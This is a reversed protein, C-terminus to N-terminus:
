KEFAMNNELNSNASSKILKKYDSTMEDIFEQRSQKSVNTYLRSIYGRELKVKQVFFIMFNGQLLDMYKIGSKLIYRIFFEFSKCDSPISQCYQISPFIDHHITEKCMMNLINTMNSDKNFYETPWFHRQRTNEDSRYDRIVNLKQLFLGFHIADQKMKELNHEDMEASLENLLESLYVGVTGAVYYCYQNLDDLNEIEKNLYIGMGSAMEDIYKIGLQQQNEPLKNFLDVISSYNSFVYSEDEPTIKLMKKLVNNSIRNNKLEQCVDHILEIKDNPALITSDEITDITKCLNYQVMIPLKFQPELKLIPISFSRSQCKLAEENDAIIQDLKNM